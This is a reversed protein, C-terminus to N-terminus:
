VCLFMHKFSWELELLPMCIDEKTRRPSALLSRILVYTHEFPARARATFAMLEGQVQVSRGASHSTMSCIQLVHDDFCLLIV